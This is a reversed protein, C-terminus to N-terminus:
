RLRKRTLPRLQTLRAAGLILTIAIGAAMAAMLVIALPLAGSLGAFSVRVDGTNSVVLVMFLVSIAAVAWLESWVVSTRVATVTRQAPTPKRRDPLVGPDPPNLRSASGTQGARGNIHPRHSIQM